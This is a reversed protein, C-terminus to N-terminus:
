PRDRLWSRIEQHLAPAGVIGAAVKWEVPHLIFAETQPGGLGGHSGIQNEFAAVEDMRPEFRSLLVLDGCDAMGDLRRLGAAALAGFHPVPDSGEVHGTALNHSGSRGLAQAGESESRVLVLGIGPHRVLSDILGPHMAEIVQRTARGPVRPFSVHALNGSAAVVVDPLDESREGRRASGRTLRAAVGGIHPVESLLRNLRGGHEVHGTAGHVLADGTWEDVFQEVSKDYRQRFTAGPSQGHDSLVIFRYRRPADAAAKELLGIIRDLGGLSDLAEVREPGAHHAVEDYDVFDVYILPTARYMEEVVLAASVHRLLVNTAARALPYPFGRDGRPELNLLRERRAQLLEKLVEGASLLIWRLVSYPSLFFWDLVHSRGVEKAPDDLTAATLFSRPADGSLLNGISAGGASLLGRGDSVRRMIERADEPHNSVLLQQRHKDWWRFAPIGDNNGHLLGAQSASTQSPLLVQWATVTMRGSALWRALNPMRGARVQRELLPRSLGDIQIFVVGPPEGAGVDHHRAALQRVLTGFFAHDDALSLGAALVTEILSYTIAGLAASAVGDIAVGPTARSLAFFLTIQFLITGLGVLAVSFASLLGILVPRALTTLSALLVATLAASQPDRMTIGPVLGITLVLALVAVAVSIAARRVLSSPGGSWTWLLRFQVAYFRAVHRLVIARSPRRNPAAVSRDHRRPRQQGEQPMRGDQKIQRSNSEEGVRQQRVSKADQMAVAAAKAIGEAIEAHVCDENRVGVVIM